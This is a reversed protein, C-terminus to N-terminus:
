IRGEDGIEGLVSFGEPFPEEKEEFNEVGEMVEGEDTIVRHRLLSEKIHLRPRGIAKVSFSICGVQSPHQYVERIVVQLEDKGVNLIAAAYRNGGRILKILRLAYKPEVRGLYEGCESEVVLHQGKLSVQVQDGHGLKALVEELALECLNVSATKGVEEIFFEPVVKHHGGDSTATSEALSALRALNKKAIVNNPVLELAKLYAEKAQVFDGLETLAKGLRNYAGVDAPFREIINKNVAEAEKWCGQIAM